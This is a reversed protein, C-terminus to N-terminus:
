GARVALWRALAADAAPPTDRTRRNVLTETM